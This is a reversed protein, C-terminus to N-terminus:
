ESTTISINTPAPVFDGPLLMTDVYPQGFDIDIDTFKQNYHEVAQIDFSNKGGEKISLIKYAKKSADAIVGTSTVIERLVWISEAEAAVTFAASVLVSTSGTSSGEQTEFHTHPAGNIHVM